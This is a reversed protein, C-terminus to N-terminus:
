FMKLIVIERVKFTMIKKLVDFLMMTKNVYEIIIKLGKSLLNVILLILIVM